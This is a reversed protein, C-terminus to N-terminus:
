EHQAEVNPYLDFHYTQGQVFYSFMSEPDATMPQNCVGEKSNSLVLRASRMGIFDHWVEHFSYMTTGEVYPQAPAVMNGSEDTMMVLYSGCVPLDVKVHVEVNYNITAVTPKPNIDRNLNLLSSAPSAFFLIIALSLISTAAKKM